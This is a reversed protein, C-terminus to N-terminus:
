PASREIERAIDGAFGDGSLFEDTSKAFELAKETNRVCGAGVVQAGKFCQRPINFSCARRAGTVVCWQKEGRVGLRLHNERCSGGQKAVAAYCAEATNFSCKENEDRVLCWPSSAALSITPFLFLSILLLKRM